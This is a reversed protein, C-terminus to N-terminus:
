WISRISIISVQIDRLFTPAFVGHDQERDDGDQLRAGQMDSQIPWPDREERAVGPAVITDLIIADREQVQRSEEEAM